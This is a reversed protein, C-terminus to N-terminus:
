AFLTRRYRRLEALATKTFDDAAYTISQEGRSENAVGHRQDKWRKWKSALADLAIMKLGAIESSGSAFGAEYVIKTTMFGDPFSRSKLGVLGNVPQFYMDDSAIEGTGPVVLDVPTSTNPYLSVSTLKVVPANKLWIQQQGIGDRYETVTEGDVAILVDRATVRLMLASIANIHMKLLDNDDVPSGQDQLYRLTEAVTVLAQSNLTVSM